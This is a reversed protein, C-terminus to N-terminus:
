EHSVNRAAIANQSRQKMLARLEAFTCFEFGCKTCYVLDEEVPREGGAVIETGGCKLCEFNFFAKPLGTETDDIERLTMKLFDANLGEGSAVAEFIAGALKKGEARGRFDYIQRYISLINADSYTVRVVRINARRFSKVAESLAVEVSPFVGVDRYIGGSQRILSMSCAGELPFKIANLDEIPVVEGNSNDTFKDSKPDHGFHRSLAGVCALILLAILEVM